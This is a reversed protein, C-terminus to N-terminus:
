IKFNAMADELSAMNQSLETALHALQNMVENQQTTLSSVEQTCAASEETVTSITEIQLVMDNKLADMHFSNEHVAVLDTNMQELLLLIENFREQTKQVADSQEKFIASSGEALRTTTQMKEAMKSLNSKVEQSSKKSEEALHRVENAVVAFGKGHEGARAAEISANLALLNTQESITEVLNMVSDINKNLANLDTFSQTMENTMTLAKQMTATLTHMTEKMNSLIQNAGKNNTILLDTKYTVNQISEALSLMNGNSKQAQEAQAITGEAVEQISTTLQNFTATSKKTSTSLIDSCDLTTTVVEHTQKLLNNINQIMHNFSTCLTAIEDKGKEPMQVTLDGAEAKKMLGMLKIIRASFSQAYINGIIFALIIMFIILGILIYTASSLTATLAAAPTKAIVRWGNELNAYAVLMDDQTFHGSPVSADLKSLLEDNLTDAHNSKETAYLLENKENILYCMSGDLLAINEFCDLISNLDIVTDISYDVNNSVDHFKKTIVIHIVGNKILTTWTYRNSVESPFMPILEEKTIKTTSGILTDKIFLNGSLIHSDLVQLYVLQDEIDGRAAFSTKFDDKCFLTLLGSQVVNTILFKSVNEEINANVTDINYAIQSVLETNLTSSTHKLANQAIITYIMSVILIPIVAFCLCVSILKFKISHTYRTYSFNKM